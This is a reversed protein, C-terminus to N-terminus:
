ITFLWHHGMAKRRFFRLWNKTPRIKIRKLSWSRKLLPHTDQLVSEVEAPDIRFGRIKILGDARGIFELDGTPLWRVLDGTKYLRTDSNKLYPHHVFVKETLQLRNKYGRALGDGAVHLEGVFGIPMPQGHTDLVYVQTNSIPKGIPISKLNKSIKKIEYYSTFTTNETPGYGNMLREPKNESYVIKKVTKVCLPEGGILLNKLSPPFIMGMHVLQNFLASTLWITNIAHQILKKEFIPTNLVDAKSLIVLKSGNLLAGWVEFMAADFSPNSVHAISDKADFNIYNTNRVLRVVGRHLIEVGKPKGTSGSTYVIYALNTSTAKNIPNTNVMEQIFSWDAELHIIHDFKKPLDLSKGPTIIIKIESDDLMWQTRSPPNGPDLPVYTGGAKLTALVAIIMEISREAYIGVATEVTVGANILYHALQNAKKNLESYTLSNNEYCVAINNPTKEVQEEFLQPITKDRPYDTETRNWDILIQQRELSTLLPLDQIASNPNQIIGSVLTQLHGRMNEIIQKLYPEKKLAKPDVFLGLKKGDTTIMLVLPTIADALHASIDFQDTVMVTIAYRRKAHLLSHYRATIDRLYSGQQGILAIQTELAQLVERFNMDPQLTISFPVAPSIFSSAEDPWTMLSAHSFMVGLNEQNGLRYLYMLWVAFLHHAHFSPWLAAPLEWQQFCPIGKNRYSASVNPLFSIEATKHSQLQQVWFAEYKFYDTSVAAFQKQLDPDPSALVSGKTIKYRQALKDLSCLQGALRSVKLLAIDQTGTAIRWSDESIAIVTGAPEGSKEALIELKRIIFASTGLTFKLTGLRNDYHGLDLACCIRYITEANEHWAIWGNAVLKKNTGYYTRLSLDQPICRYTHETFEDVLEKFANLAHEYCKLNM